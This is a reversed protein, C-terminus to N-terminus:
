AFGDQLPRGQADEHPLVVDTHEVDGRRFLVLGPKLESKDTVFAMSAEITQSTRHLNRTSKERLDRLRRIQAPNTCVLDFTYRAKKYNNVIDNRIQAFRALAFYFSGSGMWAVVVM